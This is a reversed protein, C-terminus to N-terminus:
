ERHVRFMSRDISLLRPPEVIPAHIKAVAVEPSFASAPSPRGSGRLGSRFFRGLIGLALPMLRGRFEDYRDPSVIREDIVPINCTPHNCCFGKSWDDIPRASAPLFFIGSKIESMRAGIYTLPMM